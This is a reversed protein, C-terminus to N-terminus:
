KTRGATRTRRDAPAGQGDGLAAAEGSEQYPRDYALDKPPPGDEIRGAVLDSWFRRWARELARYFQDELWKWIQM